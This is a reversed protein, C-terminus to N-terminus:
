NSKRDEEDSDRLCLKGQGRDVRDVGRWTESSEAGRSEVLRM